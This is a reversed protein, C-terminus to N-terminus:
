AGLHLFAMPHGHQTFEVPSHSDPQGTSPLQPVEECIKNHREEHHALLLGDVTPVPIAKEEKSAGRM